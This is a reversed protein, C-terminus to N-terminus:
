LNDYIWKPMYYRRANFVSGILRADAQQLRQVAAQAVEWRTEEARVVLVVGDTQAAITLSDSNAYVADGDIVIFRYHMRLRDFLASLAAPDLHGKGGVPMVDFRLGEVTVVANSLAQDPDALMEALGLHQHLGLQRTISGDALSADLVLVRDRSGRALENALTLVSTTTGSGNNAATLLLIRLQEDLVVSALNNESAPQIAMMQTNAPIGM